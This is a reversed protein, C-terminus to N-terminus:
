YSDTKDFKHYMSPALISVPISLLLMMVALAGITLALFLSYILLFYMLVTFIILLARVAQKTFTHWKNDGTMFFECALYITTLLIPFVFLYTGGHLLFAFIFLFIMHFFLGGSLVEVLSIKFKRHLKVYGITAAFIIIAALSLFVRDFPVYPMFTLHFATGTVLCPLKVALYGVIAAVLMFVLWLFFSKIVNFINLLKRKVALLSVFIACLVTFGILIWSFGVPYHVLVGPLLTFFVSDSSSDFSNSNSYAKDNVYLNVLPYVQSGYAQLTGKSTNELIDSQTHYSRLDNLTSFNICNYGAELFPSLDTDSPLYKYVEAAVSFSFPRDVKSYLKIINTNDASTQFMYLPGHNGRSEINMVLNVDALYQSNENIVAEAGNLGTEESDTFVYKIGNVLPKSSNQLQRMIELMTVVGYGDDAAGHSGSTVEGYKIKYPSSDYHAMLLINQGSTGPIEAYINNIEVTEEKGTKANLEPVANHSASDPTLGFSEITNIIYQRVEEHQTRDFVSHPEKAINELYSYANEASFEGSSEKGKPLPDLIMIIGLLIAVAMSVVTVIIYLKSKFKEGM